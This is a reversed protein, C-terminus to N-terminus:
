QREQEKKFRMATWDNDISILSVIQYGISNLSEWGKEQSLESTYTKSSKKPYAFWVIAGKESNKELIVAHKEVEKSTRVFVLAFNIREDGQVTRKVKVIKGIDWLVSLFERPANFVFIEKQNKCYLKKLLNNLNSKNM